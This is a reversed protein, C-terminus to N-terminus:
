SRPPRPLLLSTRAAYAQWDPKGARLRREMAPISYAAFLVTIALPGVATWAWTPDAAVAFLCLGWWFAMEGLYNPHRSWSWVGSSLTTGAASARHRRLELDARNEIWIAAATLAAAVADLAGLPSGAHSLVPYLSLCGLFVLGTPVFHIGLLDVVWSLKGSSGKLGTYRWDEDDLGRWRLVWNTTLSVAWWLVLALVQLSRLSVEPRGEGSLLWYGAIVPPAVSWYPDYFSSNRSGFSAAFVVLTAALDAAGAAFIPHVEGLAVVVAAAVGLAVGYVVAVRILAGGKDARDTPM